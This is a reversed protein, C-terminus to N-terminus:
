NGESKELVRQYIMKAMERDRSTKTQRGRLADDLDRFVRPVDVRAGNDVIGGEVIKGIDELDDLREMAGLADQMIQSPKYPVLKQLREVDGEHHYQEVRYLYAAAEMHIASRFNREEMEILAQEHSVRSLLDARHIRNLANGFKEVFSRLDLMLRALDQKMDLTKYLESLYYLHEAVWHFNNRPMAHLLRAIQTFTPEMNSITTKQDPRRRSKYGDYDWGNARLSRYLLGLADNARGQEALKKARDLSRQLVDRGISKLRFLLYVLSTLVVIVLALILYLM